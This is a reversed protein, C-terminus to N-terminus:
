VVLTNYTVAILEKIKAIEETKLDIEGGGHLKGALKFRIVKENGNIKADTPMLLSNVCVQGLSIERDPDKEGKENVVREKISKGDLDVILQDFNIKM